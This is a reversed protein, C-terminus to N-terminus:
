IRVGRHRGRDENAPWGCPLGLGHPGADLRKVAAQGLNEWQELDAYDLAENRLWRLEANARRLMLLTAKNRCNCVGTQPTFGDFIVYPRHAWVQRRFLWQEADHVVVPCGPNISFLASLTASRQPVSASDDVFILDYKGIDHSGQDSRLWQAVTTNVLQPKWRPDHGLLSVVRQFWQGDTEVSTIHQLSPWYNSDLFLPTSYLGCGLELVRRPRIVAACVILAPVHSGYDALSRPSPRVIADWASHKAKKLARSLVNM